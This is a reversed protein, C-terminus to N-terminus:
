SRNSGCKGTARCPLSSRHHGFNSISPCKAENISCLFWTSCYWFIPGNFFASHFTGRDMSTSLWPNQEGHDNSLALLHQVHGCPNTLQQCPTYSSTSMPPGLFADSDLKSRICGHLRHLSSDQHHIRQINWFIGMKYSIISVLVHHNFPYLLQRLLM